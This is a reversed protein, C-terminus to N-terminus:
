YPEIIGMVTESCDSLTKILIFLDFGEQIGEDDFSDKMLSNQIEELQVQEPDLNLQGKVFELFVYNIREFVVVFDDLSIIISRM